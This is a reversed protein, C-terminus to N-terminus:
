SCVSRPRCLKDNQAEPGYQNIKHKWEGQVVVEVGVESDEEVVVEMAVAGEMDGVVEVMAVVEELDVEAVVESAVVM